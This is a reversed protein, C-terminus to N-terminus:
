VAIMMKDSRGNDIMLISEIQEKLKFHIMLSQLKNLVVLSVARFHNLRIFLWKIQLTM